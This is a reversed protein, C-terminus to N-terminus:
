PETPPEPAAAPAPAESSPKAKPAAKAKPKTSAAAPARKGGEILDTITVDERSVDFRGGEGPQLHVRRDTGDENRAWFSRTGETTNKLHIMTETRQPATTGLPTINDVAGVWEATPRGFLKETWGGMSRVRGGIEPLATSFAQRYDGTAAWAGPQAFHGAQSEMPVGCLIAATAGMDFLACQLAFLGSSGPWREATTEPTFLRGAPEGAREAAWGPLNDPHLSCWADLPGAYHIGALNAAVVMHRRNLLAQAEALDRWVSPAGGLILAIM